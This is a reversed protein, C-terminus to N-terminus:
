PESQREPVRQRRHSVEYAAELKELWRLLRGVNHDPAYRLFTGDASSCGFTVALQLRRYSNVRGMHVRKGRDCAARAAAAAVVGLKFPTTGGLFLVDFETWPTGDDTWGDQAVLAAPYGLARLQPLLPRSLAVTAAYDGVVDPATAFLAREAPQRELWALYRVDSYYAPESFCGNDAAWTAGEPVPNRMRPTLIFGIRPHRLSPRIHGSLYIM